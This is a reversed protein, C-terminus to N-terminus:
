YWGRPLQLTLRSNRPASLTAVKCCPPHVFTFLEWPVPLLDRFATLWFFVYLHLAPFASKSNFQVALLGSNNFVVYNSFHGSFCFACVWFPSVLRACHLSARCLNLRVTRPSFCQCPAGDQCDIRHSFCNPQSTGFHRYFAKQGM